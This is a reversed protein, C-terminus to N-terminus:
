VLIGKIMRHKGNIDKRVEINSYNMDDLINKVEDGLAENIEFFIFGGKNLIKKGIAAIKKYFILPDDDDVFLAIDPEYDLVNSKMLVRESQKVYPPNSVIIDINQPLINYDDNLINFEIFNVSSKNLRSNVKAVDIAEKSVDIAYVEANIIKKALSIAICGSGTGMDIIQMGKTISDDVIWQVLEETEPRPILVSSNVKFSLDFFDTEGLIYQIPENDSLRQKISLIIDCKDQEILMSSNTLVQIKTLDLVNEYILFLMQQIESNSYITKLKNKFQKNIEQITFQM